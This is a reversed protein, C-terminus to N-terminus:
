GQCQEDFGILNSDHEERTDYFHVSGNEPMRLNWKTVADSMDVAYDTPLEAAQQYGRLSSPFWKPKFPLTNEPLVKLLCEGMDGVYDIVTVYDWGSDTKHQGGLYNGQMLHM